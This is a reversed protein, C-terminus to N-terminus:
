NAFIIAPPVPMQLLVAVPDLIIIRMLRPADRATMSLIGQQQLIINALGLSLLLTALQTQPDRIVTIDGELLFAGLYCYMLFNGSLTAM